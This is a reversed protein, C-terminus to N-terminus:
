IDTNNKEITPVIGNNKLIDYLFLRGKQTWKTHMNVGVSGDKRFYKETVSHTYGKDHYHKYLLWQGSQKYQIKLDKLTKNMEQASMGYDKAIQTINVLEKSQLILDHYEAKPQLEGIQQQQMNNELLLDKNRQELREKEEESELAMKLLDKRSLNQIPNNRYAKEVEIFYDRIEYGKDTGSMLAIHKAMDLSLAYDQLQRKAGNNVVTSTLVSTYDKDKVFRKFNQEAWASFRRTLGLEDYLQRASIAIEGNENEKIEILDKIDNM